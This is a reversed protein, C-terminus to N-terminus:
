EDKEFMGMGSRWSIEDSSDCSRYIVGYVIGQVNATNTMPEVLLGVLGM